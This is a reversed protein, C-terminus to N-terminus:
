AAQHRFQHRRTCESIEFELETSHSPEANSARISPSRTAGYRVRLDLALKPVAEKTNAENAAERRSLKGVLRAEWSELHTKMQEKFVNLRNPTQEM